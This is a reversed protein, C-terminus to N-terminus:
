QAQNKQEHIKQRSYDFMDSDILLSQVKIGKVM